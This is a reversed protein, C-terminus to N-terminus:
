SRARVPARKAPRARRVPGSPRLSALLNATTAQFGAIDGTPRAVLMAGELCGLIVRATDRASGPVNLSGDARGRELVRTLWDESRAFFAVVASQMAPPLVQYEAAVMGCLCMRHDRLVALYLGAYDTLLEPASRGTADLDALATDFRECYRAILAEGLAAKSAFHYHLAPKTVGLEAAVDAYSFGNFGRVQLLREAVDLIRTATSADSVRQRSAM